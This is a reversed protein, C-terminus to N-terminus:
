MCIATASIASSSLPREGLVAPVEARLKELYGDMRSIPLSVDYGMPMGLRM